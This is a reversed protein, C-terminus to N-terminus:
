FASFILQQIGVPIDCKLPSFINKTGEQVMSTVVTDVALGKCGENNTVMLVLIHDEHEDPAVLIFVRRGLYPLKGLLLNDNMKQLDVVYHVVTNVM